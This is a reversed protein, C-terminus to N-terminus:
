NGFFEKVTHHLSVATIRSTKPNEQSSVNVFTFSAQGLPGEIEVEHSNAQVTPDVIVRVSTQDMGIGAIAVTAAVNLNKPFLTAAKRAPGEFLVVESAVTEGALGRAALEDRWASPPKRSTYRVKIPPTTAMMRIYDLGGIAGSPLILRAQHQSCLHKLHAHFADDALAGVSAVIVPIGRQLLHPVWERVAAQGAAEVVIAPRDALSTLDTVWELRDRITRCGREGSRTLVSIRYDESECLLAKALAQGIAGYGILGVHRQGGGRASGV